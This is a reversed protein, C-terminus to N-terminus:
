KKMEGVYYREKEHQVKGEWLTLLHPWLEMWTKTSKQEMKLWGFSPSWTEFFSDSLKGKGKDGSSSIDCVLQSWLRLPLRGTRGQGQGQGQGQEDFSKCETMPLQLDKSAEGCNQHINTFKKAPWM